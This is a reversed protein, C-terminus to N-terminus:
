IRSVKRHKMKDREKGEREKGNEVYDSFEEGKWGKRLKEEMKM